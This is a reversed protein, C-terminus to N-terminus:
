GYAGPAGANREGHDRSKRSRPPRGSRFLERTGTLDLLREIMPSGARVAITKGHEVAQKRLNLLVNLGSCDCFSVASLDLDIGGTSRGLIDYLDHQLRRGADFDLDGRVVVSIRDGTPMVGITALRPLVSSPDSGSRARETGQANRFQAPEPM